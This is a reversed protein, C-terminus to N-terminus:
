PRMYITVFLVHETVLPIFGFTVILRTRVEVAKLRPSGLPPSLQGFPTEQAQREGSVGTGGGELLGVLRPLQKVMGQASLCM